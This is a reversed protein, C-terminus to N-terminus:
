SRARGVNIKLVYKAAMNKRSTKRSVVKTAVRIAAAAGMSRWASTVRWLGVIVATSLDAGNM